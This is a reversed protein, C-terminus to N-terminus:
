RRSVATRLLEVAANGGEDPGPFRMAYELPTAEVIEDPAEYHGPLRARVTLDAGAELLLRVMPLGAEGFQTAAHFIPTQGGVGRRDTEARANVDAGRALLLKAAELAGFEAAVHLLTADSLLLRRGGSAGIDLGPCRRNVLAPDADILAALAEPTAALTELVGPQDFRTRGGAARLHDIAAAMRSYSRGYCELLYDLATVRGANADAGHALLWAIVQPALGECAAHLMPLSDGHWCANVDAGHAVLLEMMAIRDANLSARMLPGDGGQHVDSGHEIMWQAMALRTASPPRWPVRCEAVWTLPGDGAYGLPARHLHPHRTMLAKVGELDEADIAQKLAGVLERAEIEAKLKPWSPYGYIRAIRHQAATLSEAEGARLLNKAQDKLHRLNAREPLARPGTQDTSM